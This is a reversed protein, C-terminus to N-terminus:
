GDLMRQISNWYCDHWNKEIARASGRPVGHQMLELRTRGRRASGFSLHLISYCDEPFDAARWAQIILKPTRLVINVGSVGGWWASFRGGVRREFRVPAGIVKAHRRADAYLECLVRPPADFEVAHAVTTATSKM